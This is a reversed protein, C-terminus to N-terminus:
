KTPVPRRAGHRIQAVRVEGAQEDVSYIIRYLHPRKGYLLQRLEGNEPAIAGRYPM